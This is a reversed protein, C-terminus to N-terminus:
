LAVNLYKGWFRAAHRAIFVPGAPVLANLFAAGGFVPFVRRSRRTLPPADALLGFGGPPAVALPLPRRSGKFPVAGGVLGCFFWRVVAFPSRARRRFFRSKLGGTLASAVRGCRRPLSTKSFGAAPPFRSCTARFSRALDGSASRGRRRRCFPRPSLVGM